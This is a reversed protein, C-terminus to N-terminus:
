SYGSNVALLQKSSTAAPLQKHNVYLSSKHLCPPRIVDNKIKVLFLMMMCEQMTYVTWGAFSM